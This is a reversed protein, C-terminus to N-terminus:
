KDKELTAPFIFWTVSWPALTRRALQTHVASDTAYILKGHSSMAHEVQVDGLNAVLTLRSRDGLTWRVEFSREGLWQLQTSNPEIGALRPAIESQRIHLLERHFELWRAHAGRERQDWDLV